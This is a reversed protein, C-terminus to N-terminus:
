APQAERMIRHAERSSGNVRKIIGDSGDVLVYDSVFCEGSLKLRIGEEGATNRALITTYKGTSEVSMVFWMSYGPGEAAAIEFNTWGAGVLGLAKWRRESAGASAILVAGVALVSGAILSRIGVWDGLSFHTSLNFPEDSLLFLPTLIFVLLNVISALSFMSGRAVCWVGIVFTVIAYAWHAFGMPNSEPRVALIVVTLILAVLGGLAMFGYAKAHPRKLLVVNVPTPRWVDATPVSRERQSSRPTSTGSKPKPEPESPKSDAYDLEQDYTARQGSNTLVDMAENILKTMVTGPDGAVDPHFLKILRRYATRVAAEDADRAIGLIDYHTAM